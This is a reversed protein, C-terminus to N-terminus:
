HFNTDYLFWDISKCNWDTSQNRYSVFKQPFTEKSCVNIFLNFNLFLIQTYQDLDLHYYEAQVKTTKRYIVSVLNHCFLLYSWVHWGHKWKM